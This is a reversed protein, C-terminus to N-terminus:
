IGSAQFMKLLSFIMRCYYCDHISRWFYLIILNQMLVPRYFSTISPDNENAMSKCIGVETIQYLKSYCLPNKIVAIRCSTPMIHSIRDPGVAKSVPFVAFNDFVQHEQIAHM